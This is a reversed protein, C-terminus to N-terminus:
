HQCFRHGRRNGAASPPHHHVDGAGAYRHLRMVVSLYVKKKKKSVVRITGDIDTDTIACLVREMEVRLIGNEIDLAEDATCKVGVRYSASAM